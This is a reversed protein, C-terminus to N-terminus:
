PRAYTVRIVPVADLLGSAMVVPLEGNIDLPVRAITGSSMRLRVAPVGALTDGAPLQEVRGNRRVLPRRVTM